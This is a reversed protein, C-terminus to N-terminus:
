PTLLHRKGFGFMSSNPHDRKLYNEEGQLCDERNPAVLCASCDARSGRGLSRPCVTYVLWWAITNVISALLPTQAHSWTTPEHHRKSHRSNARPHREPRTRVPIRQAFGPPSM